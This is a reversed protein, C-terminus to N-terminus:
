GGVVKKSLHGCIDLLEGDASDIADHFAKRVGDCSDAEFTIDKHGFVYGKIKGENANYETIGYNGAYYLTGNERANLADSIWECADKDESWCWVIGSTTDHVSVLHYESCTGNGDYYDWVLPIGKGNTEGSNPYERVGYKAWYGVVYLKPLSDIYTRTKKSDILIKKM